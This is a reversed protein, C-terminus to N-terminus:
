AAPQEEHRDERRREVLGQEPPGYVEDDLRAVFNGCIGCQLGTDHLGYSHGHDACWDLVPHVHSSERAKRAKRARVVAYRFGIATVAAVGVVPLVWSPFAPFLDVAQSLM